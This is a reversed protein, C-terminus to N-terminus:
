FVTPTPYATGTYRSIAARRFREYGARDNLEIFCPGCELYDLTTVDWGDFDDVQLLPTFREEAQRWRGALAHWEGLSRLAAAGEMTPKAFSLRGALDDAEQFREQSILLTLQTIKERLEAQERLAIESREAAVARQLAARELLGADLDLRGNGGGADRGGGCRGSIGGPQPPGIQQLSVRPEAAPGGRTRQAFLAPHGHGRRQGNRLPAHPRKGVGEDRDLGFRGEATFDAQAARCPSAGGHQDVGNRAADYSYELAAATGNRAIDPAHRGPVSKVLEKPDFPTRGTLLEYLLVGLSYIDSRTDVDLGSMEAQVPSMYAPTGVLQEYATFLTQDTLRGEIAKAIGFDIVKCVPVGNHLTVLINSPKIDRHIVGKQHAHQIAQCIQIFLELRQRTDLNSQDCFTTIRTGRVLEANLLIHVVLRPRAPM